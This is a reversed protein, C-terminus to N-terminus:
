FSKARYSGPIAVAMTGIETVAAAEIETEEVVETNAEENIEDINGEVEAIEEAKNDELVDESLLTEELTLASIEEVEEAFIYPTAFCSILLVVSLMLCLKKM